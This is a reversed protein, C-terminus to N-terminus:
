ILMFPYWTVSKRVKVKEKCGDRDNPSIALTQIYFDAPNYNVPCVFGQSKFFDPTSVLSGTYALRGEAMLYVSDFLEFIESSPQHITCVITKGQAALNNM